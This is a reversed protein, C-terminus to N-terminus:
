RRKQFSSMFGKVFPLVVHTFLAILLIVPLLGIGFGIIMKVAWVAVFFGIVTRFMQNAERSGVFVSILFWIVFLNVLM